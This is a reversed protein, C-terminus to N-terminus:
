APVASDGYHQDCIEQPERTTEPPGFREPSADGSSAMWSATLTWPKSSIMMEVRGVFTEFHSFSSRGEFSAPRPRGTVVIVAL